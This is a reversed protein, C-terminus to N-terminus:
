FRYNQEIGGIIVENLDIPFTYKPDNPLLQYTKGNLIRTLIVQRNNEQNLRRLDTWRLGRFCLEKRREELIKSIAVERDTTNFDVYASEKNWRKKMLANLDKLANNLNGARANCESRILLIEDVALGSFFFRSGDYSGKFSTNIASKEFFLKLRLDNPHYLALLEDTANLNASSFLAVGGLRTQYIVEDNLQPIPYETASNLTNFDILKDYLKLCATANDLAAAYNGMSLYVRALMAYSAPKSPRTKYSITSPLLHIAETLDSIIRDYTVKVSARKSPENINSILRLPIGLDIGANESYPKCYQQALAYFNYARYYLASGKVNDWSEKNLSSREVSSIGELALNANLIRQYASRWNVDSGEYFDTTASWTYSNRYPAAVTLLSNDSVQFDGSSIEAYAGSENQNMLASNDMLAQFDAIKTPVVLSNSPKADLWDKKCSSFFLGILAIYIYKM